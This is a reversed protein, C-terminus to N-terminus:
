LTEGGPELGLLEVQDLRGLEVGLRIGERTHTGSSTSM